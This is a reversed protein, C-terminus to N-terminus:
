RNTERPGASGAALTQRYYDELDAVFAKVDGTVEFREGLRARYALPFAPKRFLPWGEGGEVRLRCDVLALM